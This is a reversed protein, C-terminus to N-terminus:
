KLIIRGNVGPDEFNTEKGGTEAGFSQICKKDRM